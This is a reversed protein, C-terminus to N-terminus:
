MITTGVMDEIPYDSGEFWVAECCSQYHTFMIVKGNDLKLLVVDNEDYKDCSKSAEVIKKGYTEKCIQEMYVSDETHEETPFIANRIWRPLMNGYLIEM